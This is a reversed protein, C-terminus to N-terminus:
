KEVYDGQLVVCKRWRHLLAKIGWSLFEEFLSRLFKEVAETVDNDSAFHQGTLSKKMELFGVM